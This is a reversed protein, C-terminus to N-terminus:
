PGAAPPDAGLAVAVAHVDRFFGTTRLHDLDGLSAEYDEDYGITALLPV